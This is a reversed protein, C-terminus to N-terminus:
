TKTSSSRSVHVPGQISLRCCCVHSQAAHQAGPNAADAVLWRYLIKTANDICLISKGTAAGVAVPDIALAITGAGLTVSIQNTAGTIAGAAFEWSVLDM